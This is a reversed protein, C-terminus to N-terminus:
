GPPATGHTSVLTHSELRRCATDTMCLCGSAAMSVGPQRSCALRGRHSRQRVVAGGPAPCRLGVLPQAVALVEQVHQVRPGLAGVLGVRAEGAGDFDQEDQVGLM